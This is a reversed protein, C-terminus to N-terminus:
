FMSFIQRKTIHKNEVYFWCLFATKLGVALSVPVHRVHEHKYYLLLKALSKNSFWLFVNQLIVRLRADQNKIPEMLFLHHQKRVFDPLSSLPM